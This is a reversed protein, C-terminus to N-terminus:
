LRNNKLKYWNHTAGYYEFTEIFEFGVKTLIRNSAANEIHAAACIEPLNLRNFGYKIVEVATETAIGRGWYKRRLRYGLDYYNTGDRSNKEYKLGSWGIFDMTTKDIVAWRGIGHAEYQKRVHKIIDESAKISQVTKNGLYKHVAPDSDLEFLGPADEETLERLFLRKTEIFIKM